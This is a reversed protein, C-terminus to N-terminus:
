LVRHLYSRITHHVSQNEVVLCSAQNGEKPGHGEGLHFVSVFSKLVRNSFYTKESVSMM